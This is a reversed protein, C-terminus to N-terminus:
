LFVTSLNTCEVSEKRGGKGRGDLVLKGRGNFAFLLVEKAYIKPLKIEQVKVYIWRFSQVLSFIFHKLAVFNRWPEHPEQTSHM